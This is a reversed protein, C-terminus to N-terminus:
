SNAVADWDWGSQLAPQEPHAYVAEERSEKIATWEILKDSSVVPESEAVEEELAFLKIFTEMAEQGEAEGALEKVRLIPDRLLKNAISKSLTRIVTMERESLDPLKKFLSEMTEEHIRAAKEQLAQIVPGIGLTNYWNVYATYAESIMEEIAAAEKHREELNSEVIAELDDLDYLYVQGLEAIAPDLDRPLAIDIMFLPRDARAPLTLALQAKTLVFERSGTSSIVIDAEALAQDLQHFPWARGNFKIALELAHEWTRNIVTIREAGGSKLHRVTLESVQGAGIVLVTKGAFQGFIKKGLEVAAYSVSVPNHGVGTESHARKALTVAQKFLYNFLTGTAGERQALLFADRVQGLIQTEGIIMSDLGSAVRFLHKVAAEEELVYLHGSFEEQAIHFQQELFSRLIPSIIQPQEVVLYLETRNCTAVIVCEQVGKVTKLRQLLPQLEGDAVTFKERLAIPATRYNLGTVVIPM